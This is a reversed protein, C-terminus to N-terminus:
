DDVHEWYYCEFIDAVDDSTLIMDEHGECRLTYLTSMDDLLEAVLTYEGASIETM